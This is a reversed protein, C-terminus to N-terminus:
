TPTRQHQLCHSASGPQTISAHPQSRVIHLLCEAQLELERDIIGPANGQAPIFSAKPTVIQWLALGTLSAKADYNLTMIPRLTAGYNGRSDHMPSPFIRVHM